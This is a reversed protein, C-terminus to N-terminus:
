DDDSDDSEPEFDELESQMASAWLEVAYSLFFVAIGSWSEDRKPQPLEGLQDDIYQLVDDGHDNMIQLATHYTVAPMYAGSACGGQCISAIDYPSIEQDIWEPINCDLLKTVPTECDRMEQETM